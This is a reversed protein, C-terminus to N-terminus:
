FPHEDLDGLADVENMQESRKGQPKGLFQFKEVTVDLSTGAKGDRTTYARPLFDGQVFVQQGKKVYTNITEALGRWATVNYWTTVENDRKGTSVALTFKAVAIGQPTYNMEVDKGVNGILTIQAFAMIHVRSESTGTEHEPSHQINLLPQPISERLM